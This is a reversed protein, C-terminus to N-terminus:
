ARSIVGGRAFIELELQRVWERLNLHMHELQHPECQFAVYDPDSPVEVFHDKLIFTDTTLKM